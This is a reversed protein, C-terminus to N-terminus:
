QQFLTYILLTTTITSFILSFPFEQMGWFRKRLPSVYILDNPQVFYYPSSLIDARTLDIIIRSNKGNENRTLIVESRNGYENIDGALGIANFITFKDQSYVYHGPSGVYGLVSVYRNVLRVTVTPLSLINIVSDKILDSVESTTKGSVNIKGIVPLQVFGEKDVTYSNMYAGYPELTPQVGSQAFVNSAADDLSNINIFLADNPKLRYESYEAEKYEVQKNKNSRMYELNRQTVCSNFLLPFIVFATLIAKPNSHLCSIQSKRNM